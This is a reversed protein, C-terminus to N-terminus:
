IKASDIVKSARDRWSASGKEKYYEFSEDNVLQGMIAKRAEQDAVKDRIDKRIMELECLFDGHEDSVIEELKKRIHGAYAPCNGETGIAIQLDKRKLVAPVFFDCLEPADVVNCLIGLEQCDKYVQRNVRENDTAAIVLTAENIYDKVYKSKILEVHNDQCFLEAAESAKEAAMVIRAGANLLVQGKQLAVPGGGIIVAKRGGMELFIPYKAM